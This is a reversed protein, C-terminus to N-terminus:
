SVQTSRPDSASLIVMTYPIRLTTNSVDVEITEFSPSGLSAYADPTRVDQGRDHDLLFRAVRSQGEVYGGDVTVLKGGPRLVRSAIDFISRATDDDVHHLVGHALVADFSGLEVPDVSTVDACFFTVGRRGYRERAQDIYHESLDFGVYEVDDLYRVVDGPGCGIDLMRGGTPLALRGIVDQWLRHSGIARQYTQYIWPSSLIRHVGTTRQSM